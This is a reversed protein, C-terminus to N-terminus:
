AARSRPYCPAAGALLPAAGHLNCCFWGPNGKHTGGVASITVYIPNDTSPVLVTKTYPNGGPVASATTTETANFNKFQAALRHIPGQAQAALSIWFGLCLSVTLAVIWKRTSTAKM